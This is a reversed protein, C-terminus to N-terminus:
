PRNESANLECNDNHTHIHLKLDYDVKNSIHLLTYKIKKEIKLECNQDLKHILIKLRM